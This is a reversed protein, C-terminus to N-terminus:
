LNEDPIQLFLKNIFILGNLEDIMATPQALQMMMQSTSLKGTEM